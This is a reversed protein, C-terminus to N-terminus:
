MFTAPVHISQFLFFVFGVEALTSSYRYMCICIDWIFFCMCMHVVSYMDSAFCRSLIATANARVLNLRGYLYALLQNSPSLGSMVNIGHNFGAWTVYAEMVMSVCVWELETCKTDNAEHKRLM